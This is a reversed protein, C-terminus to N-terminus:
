WATIEIAFDMSSFPRIVSSSYASISVIRSSFYRGYKPVNNDFFAQYEPRKSHYISVVPLLSKMSFLLSFRAFVAPESFLFALRQRRWLTSPIRASAASAKQVPSSFVFANHRIGRTNRSYGGTDANRGSRYTGWSRM